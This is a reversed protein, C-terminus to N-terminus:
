IQTQRYNGELLKTVIRDATDFAIKYGHCAIPYASPLLDDTITNGIAAVCAKNIVCSECGRVFGLNAVKEMMNHNVGTVVNGLCLKENGVASAYPYVNGDVAVSFVLDRRVKMKSLGFDSAYCAIMDDIKNIQVRDGSRLWEVYKEAIREFATRLLKVHEAKWSSSYDLFFNMSRFGVEKLHVVNDYLIGVNAATIVSSSTFRHKTIADRLRSIDLLARGDKNVRNDDNNLGDYSVSIKINHKETFELFSDSILTGNTIVGLWVPRHSKEKIYETVKRLLSEELLPEGGFFTVRAYKKCSVLLVDIAAMAVEESM